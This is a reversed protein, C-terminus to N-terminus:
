SAVEGVLCPRGAAHRDCPGVVSCVRPGLCGAPPLRLVPAYSRALAADWGQDTTGQEALDEDAQDLAFEYDPRMRWEIALAALVEPKREILRSAVPAAAKPGRIVLRDGDAAVDLGAARAEEILMLGDM